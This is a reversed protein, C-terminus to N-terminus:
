HSDTDLIRVALPSFPSNPTLIQRAPLSHPSALPVTPRTRSPRPCPPAALPHAAMLSPPDRRALTPAALAPSRPNPTHTPCPAPMPNAHPRSAPREPKLISPARAHLDRPSTPGPASGTHTHGPSIPVATAPPVMATAREAFMTLVPSISYLTPIFKCVFFEKRGESVRGKARLLM